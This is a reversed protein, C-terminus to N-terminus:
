IDDLRSQSIMEDVIQYGSKIVDSTPTLGKSGGYSLYNDVNQQMLTPMLNSLLNMRLLAREKLKSDLWEKEAEAELRANQAERQERLQAVKDTNNNGDQNLEKEMDEQVLEIASALSILNIEEQRELNYRAIIKLALELNEVEITDMVSIQNYEAESMIEAIAEYSRKPQKVSIRVM